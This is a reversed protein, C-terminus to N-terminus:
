FNESPPGRPEFVFPAPGADNEWRPFTTTAILLKPKIKDPLKEDQM